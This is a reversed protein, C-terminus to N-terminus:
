TNTNYTEHSRFSNTYEKPTELTIASRLRPLLLESFFTLHIYSLMTHASDLSRCKLRAGVYVIYHQIVSTVQKLKLKRGEIFQPHYHEKTSKFNHSSINSCDNSFM